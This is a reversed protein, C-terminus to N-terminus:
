PWAPAVRLFRLGTGAGPAAGGSLPVGAKRRITEARANILKAGIAPGDSWNPVLGWRLAAFRRAGSSTGAVVYAPQTPAVNWSPPLYPTPM